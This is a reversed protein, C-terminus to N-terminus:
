RRARPLDVHRRFGDVDEPLASAREFLVEQPRNAASFELAGDYVVLTGAASPKVVVLDRDHDPRPEISGTDPGIEASPLHDFLTEALGAALPFEVSGRHFSRQVSDLTNARAPLAEPFDNILLNRGLFTSREFPPALNGLPAWGVSDHLVVTNGALTEDCALSSNTAPLNPIANDDPDVVASPVTEISRDALAPPRERDFATPVFRWGDSAVIVSGSSQPGFLAADLERDADVAADRLRLRNVPAHDLSEFRGADVSPEAVDTPERNEGLVPRVGRAFRVHPTMLALRFIIALLRPM